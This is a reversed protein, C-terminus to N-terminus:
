EGDVFKILDFTLSLLYFIIVFFFSFFLFDKFYGTLSGSEFDWTSTAVAASFDAGVAIQDGDIDLSIGFRDGQRRDNAQLKQVEKWDDIETCDLKFEMKGGKFEVCDVKISVNAGKDFEKCDYCLGNISSSSNWKPILMPVFEFDSVFTVTWSYLFGDEGLNESSSSVKIEDINNLNVLVESLKTSTISFKMPITSINSGKTHLALQFEGESLQVKSTLNIYQIQPLIDYVYVKGRGVARICFGQTDAGLDTLDTGSKEYDAYPAGVVFTRGSIAISSGFEQAHVKNVSNIIDYDYDSSFVSKKFEWVWKQLNYKYVRHYIYIKEKVRSGIIIINNKLALSGRSGFLDNKESDEPKVLQDSYKYSIGYDQGESIYIHVTNNGPEGIALISISQSYISCLRVSDGFKGEKSPSPSIFEALQVWISLYSGYLVVSGSNPMDKIAMTSPSGYAMTGAKKDVSVDNGINDTESINVYYIKDYALANNIFGDSNDLITVVSMLSGLPSPWIGPSNLTVIVTEDPSELISDPSTILEHYTSSYGSLIVKPEKLPVYDSLGRYDYEGDIWVSENHISGYYQSRAMALGALFTGDTITGPYAVSDIRISYINSLYIQQLGYANRDLSQIYFLIDEDSPKSSIIEVSLKLKDGETIEYTPSSYKIQLININFITAAGGNHNPVIYDRNPCGVLVYSGSISVSWGCRDIPEYTYPSVFSNEVFEGSVSDKLFVHTLGRIVPPTPNTIRINVRANTGTLDATDSIFPTLNDYLEMFTISWLYGGNLEDMETRSVLIEGTNLELKLFEKLNDATIDNQIPSSVKESMKNDLSTSRWKLRFTGGLKDGHYDAYTEMELIPKSAVLDGIYEQVAGVVIKDGELALDWGFYDNEKVNSAILRQSFMYIGLNNKRYVFVNGTNPAKENLSRGLYIMQDDFGFAGVALTNSDFDFSRGFYDNENLNYSNPAASGTIRQQEIWVDYSSLVFIFVGGQNSVEDGNSRIGPRNPSGVVLDRGRVIVKFGFKGGEYIDGVLSVIQKLVWSKTDHIYNYVYVAGKFNNCGPCGVAVTTNSVSVSTGFGESGTPSLPIFQAEQVWNDRLCLSSNGVCPVFRFVYAAGHTQINSNDGVITGTGNQYSTINIMGNLGDITKLTYADVGLLELNSKTNIGNNLSPHGDAPSLFTIKATKGSCLPGGGWDDILIRNITYLKNENLLAKDAEIADVLEEKTVNSSILSTSWGRFNLKFYGDSANCFLYQIEPKSRSSAGIAGVVILDTDLSLSYGFQDSETTDEGVITAVEIWDEGIHQFVYVAGAKSGFSGMRQPMGYMYSDSINYAAGIVIDANTGILKNIYGLPELNTEHNESGGPCSKITCGDVLYGRASKTLVEIFTITWTYENLSSPVSRHVEVTNIVPLAELAVKVDASSANYTLFNTSHNRFVLHFGGGVGTPANIGPRQVTHWVKIDGGTLGSSNSQLLPVDYFGQYAEFTILWSRARTVFTDPTFLTEVDKIQFGITELAEAIQDATADYPISDTEKGLAIITFTGGLFSSDQITNADEIAANLGTLESTDFILPSLDGRKRDLFTVTWKFANNCACYIYSEKTVNVEGLDLEDFIYVELLDPHANAPILRTPGQVSGLNATSQMIRFYGGITEGPDATTYFSQIEYQSEITIGLEQVERQPTLRATKTTVTQIEFVSRNHNPAGIIALDNQIATSFGTQDGKLVSSPRLANESSFSVFIEQTTTITRNAGKPTSSFRVIYDRGRRRIALDKYYFVGASAQIDLAGLLVGGPPNLKVDVDAIPRYSYAKISGGNLSFADRASLLKERDGFYDLKISKDGMTPNYLFILNDTGNGSQYYAYSDVDGTEMRITPTGFVAVPASFKIAFRIADGYGYIGPSSIFRISYAYPVSGDIYLSSNYSISGQRGPLPLELSAEITPISSVQLISGIDGDITVGKFFSFQDVYDLKPSFDNVSVEYSFYFIKSPLSPKFRDLPATLNVGLFETKANRDGLHLTLFPSGTIIVFSSFTMKFYIIDGPAYRANPSLTDVSIIKPVNDTKIKIYGGTRIALSTPSPLTSDAETSPIISFRYIKTSRSLLLSDKSKYTLDESYDGPAVVYRFQLVTFNLGIYKALGLRGEGVSLDLSPAVGLILVPRDFEMYIDIEEGITYYGDYASTTKECWVDTIVPPLTYVNTPSYIIRDTANLDANECSKGQSQALSRLNLCEYNLITCSFNGKGDPCYVPSLATGNPYNVAFIGSASDGPQVIYTFSLTKTGTGGIYEAYRTINEPGVINIFLRTSSLDQPYVADNFTAIFSVSAGAGVETGTELCEIKILYTRRNLDVTVVPINTFDVGQTLESSGDQNIIYYRPEQPMTIAGDLSPYESAALILCDSTLACGKQACFANPSFRYSLFKDGLQIIYRFIITDTGNGIYYEAINPSPTLLNLVPSCLSIVPLNLQVAIYIVNDTTANLGISIPDTSHVYIRKFAPAFGYLTISTQQDTTSNVDYYMMPSTIHNTSINVDTTPNTSLRAIKVGTYIRIANGEPIINLNSTNANKPVTYTFELTKNDDLLRNFLALGKARDSMELTISFGLIYVTKDFQLYLLLKDGAYLTGNLRNCRVGFSPNLSPPEVDLSIDHISSFISLFPISVNAVTTPLDSRRLVSNTQGTSTLNIYPDSVAIKSASDGKLVTYSFSLIYGSPSTESYRATVISNNRWVNLILFPEGTVIVPHSYKIFFKIDQGVGYSGNSLDSYLATVYPPSTDITVNSSGTIFLPLTLNADKENGDYIKSNNLQIGSFMLSSGQQIDGPQVRYLFSLTNTLSTTGYLSANSYYNDSSIINLSLYVSSGLCSVYSEFNVDFSILQGVGYIGNTVNLKVSTIKVSPSNKTDVTISVSTSLSEMVTSTVISDYDKILRNGGFDLLRLVPQITMPQGGAWALDGETMTVISRAPGIDVDFKESLLKM